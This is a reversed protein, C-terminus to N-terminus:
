KGAKGARKAEAALEKEYGEALTRAYLKLYEARDRPVWLGVQTYGRERMRQAYRARRDQKTTDKADSM